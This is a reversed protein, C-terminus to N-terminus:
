KADWTIRVPQDGAPIRVVSDAGSHMTDVAGIGEIARIAMRCYRIRIEFVDPRSGTLTITRTSGNRVVEARVGSPMEAIGADGPWVEIVRKGDLAVVDPDMEPTRVVLTDIGEPLMVIVAGARVYVPIRTLPAEVEITRRGGFREGTWMDIWDGPPLVVSRKTGPHYMPAVLLDPGFMYQFREHALAGETPYALVMPRIIPVGHDRAEVSAAEIYPFLRTHLRAFERYIVLAEDGYDWPGKNSTMHVMMLPTFAAFQTWRVFLEPSADGIYGAIDCGWLPLGSLSANQAAIIVGPLGNDFSWSAENDGAWGFPFRGTGTFGCRAILTHDGPRVSELFDSSAQLYLEAYRGKMDAATSGDHFVADQVFNSEGDDCKIAAVHWRTMPMMQDHWWAVAEPNTFDVLGGEGKWWGVVMPSGDSRQVLYGMDVAEAFNRSPGADIGVMDTVNTENIFPTLWLCTEFGLARVRAFMANPDPFQQENLIFDNYSTEWPSDLVLVSAPLDLERSREVDELVEARNNHINRSKWPAFAWAPPVAPRGTLATFASLAEQPTSGNLIVLRMRSSTDAIRIHDRDTANLDFVSPSTSDVWLGYGRTSYIYPVPKYSCTGKDEPRDMSGMSLVYGKQNLTHFREGGGFYRSNDQISAELAHPAGDHTRWEISVGRNGAAAITVADVVGPGHQAVGDIVFLGVTLVDRVAGTADKLAVALRGTESISVDAAPSTFVSAFAGSGLEALTIVSNGDGDRMPVSPDAHWTFRGQADEIVFKYKIIADDIPVTVAWEGETDRVMPHSGNTIAGNTNPGWGNFSGALYVRTAGADRYTFRIGDPTSAVEARAWGAATLLLLACVVRLALTVRHM